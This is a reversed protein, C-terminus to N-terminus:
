VHELLMMTMMMIMVISGWYLAMGAYQLCLGECKEKYQINELKKSIGFTLVNCLNFQILRLMNKVPLYRRATAYRHSIRHNQPYRPPSLLLGNGAQMYMM